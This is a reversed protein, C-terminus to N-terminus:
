KLDCVKGVHTFLLRLTIESPNLQLMRSLARGYLSLQSRYREAIDALDADDAIEDSKFDLVTAKQPRSESDRMITVRDFVGTVWEDGLVIEFHKERWLDANGEPRSLAKQVEVSTLAQRIQEIVKRKVGETFSAAEQWEWILTEVDVEGIWSVKEFLEHIATGFELSDRAAAAFLLDAKREREMWTSPSIRALRRKHSPQGGFDGSLEHLEYLEAVKKRRPVGTYWDREGEEYLCTFECGDIEIRKGDVPKAEGALQLKLLSAPRMVTASKGPFSTVIYLGQRARTLAVYLLCLADFCATEDSVKVQEALVPDSQAILRRPMKLAWLPHSTLPDRATVFDIQGGGTMTGNQLDPLIVIDFGLGKSQHITMVRIADESALEHLEYSDIFHLFDNCNRSGSEDFEGAANILDKLRKRGFADLPHAEDLRAGWNRILARFGYNQIGWLLALPLNNRNLQKRDFYDRLPSMELHRWALTDGPHASFKVLSLLLSVVPNDKIAARGEHIINMDQCSRRLFDVIEKGCKNTRVLIAVSLGRSLPDIERLLHAVVNYRGDDEPKVGGNECPPELLSVYGHKPVVDKQCQHVQWVKEWEAAAGIPLEDEPLNSFVRNVTDVVPKCSRFTTSLQSQQIRSGYQELISGFLRSNGGRWGYIAQKVDGVYFFSRRGSTDQLIEDVLNRLVEWQLDSTDQFEDLLWHDLKCDLRYDIYLRTDEDPMRSLLSGGSYSNAATLLYQADTFTLRGQRRVIYDYFQEYQELVQYIGRTKKLANRLEISVVHSLLTFISEGQEASLTSESKGYQLVIEGQRLREGSELLAQFVVGKSLNDDWMASESYSSAFDAFRALGNSLRKPLNSMGLSSRLAAAASAVDATPKLWLSGEPWIISEKGWFDASPLIQYHKRYDGIFTDLSRELSKEEQGFTAQKFAELFERQTGDDAQRVAFIRDLVEQRANRAEAGENDLMQFNTPIGLEMPFTRIIGVTFSDLTGVHLRHLGDMLNRLLKLFDGQVFGRKGIREATEGAQEPSSAAQCLYRVISDFIEGAAKRSFTLAVIQDPKVGNALLQIYRHALQFTKGSGASAAIAKHSIREIAM